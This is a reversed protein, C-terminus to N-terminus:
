PAVFLARYVVLAVGSAYLLGFVTKNHRALWAPLFIDFNSARDETYRYAIITLPCRWGFLMLVLSEVAVLAISVYVAPTLAGTIGAILIYFILGAFFAWIATHVARVIFLSREANM